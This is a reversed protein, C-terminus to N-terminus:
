KSERKAKDYAVDCDVRTAAGRPMLETECFRRAANARKQDEPITLGYLVVAGFLAAVGIAIKALLGMRLKKGCHPCVAAGDSVEKGCEKCSVLAM